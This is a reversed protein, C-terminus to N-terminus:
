SEDNMLFKGADLEINVLSLYALSRVTYQSDPNRIGMAFLYIHNIFERVCAAVSPFSGLNRVYYHDGM